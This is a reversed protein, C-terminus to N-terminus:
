PGPSAMRGTRSRKKQAPGSAVRSRNGLLLEAMCLVILLLALPGRADGSGLWRASSWPVTREGEPEVDLTLREIGLLAQLEGRSVPTLGSEEATWNVVYMATAEHRGVPRVSYVGAQGVPWGEKPSGATLRVWEPRSDPDDLRTVRATGDSPLIAFHHPRPQGVVFEATATPPGQAEEVLYHLWTMLGAARVGLDSWAPNPSTTLLVVRGEGSPVSLIAPTGDQYRALVSATGKLSTLRVRRRVACRTIEGLEEVDAYPSDLEWRMTTAAEVVASDPMQDSFLIRLGPWDPREPEAGPVLLLTAGGKVHALVAASQETKLDVGSLVVILAPAHEPAAAESPADAEDALEDPRVRRLQLLQREPPLTEPALLNSVILAALNEEAGGTGGYVLWARTQQGVDVAVRRRQDFDLRDAPEVTLELAHAGRPLGALLFTVDREAGAQINLPGIRHLVQEGSRAVIWCEGDFGVAGLTAHIPVPVAQPHVHKPGAASLLAINSRRQDAPALVRVTVNDVGALAEPGVDRWAHAALDTVVVIQRRPQSASRLLGAAARVAPGLTEATLQSRDQARLRAAVVAREETLGCVGGDQSAYVLGLASGAPWSQSSQVFNLARRRADDLLTSEADVRYSMSASDDFVVVCALPGTGLDVEDPAVCTPGALLSAACALLAARLMLLWLNRLRSARRGSALAAHLLKVPPFRVPKPRARLIFHILIPLVASLAGLLLLPQAFSFSWSM